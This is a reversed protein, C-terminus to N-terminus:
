CTYECILTITIVQFMEIWEGDIDRCYISLVWNGHDEELLPGIMFDNENMNREEVDVTNDRKVDSQDVRIVKYMIKPHMTKINKNIYKLVVNGPYEEQSMADHFKFTKSRPGTFDLKIVDGNPRHLRYLVDKCNM